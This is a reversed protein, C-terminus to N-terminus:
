GAACALARRFDAILDDPHELGASVRITGPGIGAEALEEPLLGVHTTTAPHTVLTEPGGLSTALQAIRTSEVFRRGADLGDVLDSTILGGALKRQRQALERQPFAGLGLDFS